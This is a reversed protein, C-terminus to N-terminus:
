KKSKSTKKSLLEIPYLLNNIEENSLNYKEKGLKIIEEIQSKLIEIAEDVDQDLDKLIMITNYINKVDEIQKYIDYESQTQEVKVEEKKEVEKELNELNEIWRM